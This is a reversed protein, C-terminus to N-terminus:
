LNGPRGEWNSGQFGFIARSPCQRGCAHLSGLGHALACRRSGCAAAEIHAVAKLLGNVRNSLAIQQLDLRPKRLHELYTPGRGM